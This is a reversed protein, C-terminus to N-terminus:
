VHARGIEAEAFPLTSGVLYSAPVGLQRFLWILMTTTSTKGHAGAVAILKFNHKKIFWPIFQDRKATTLGLTQARTLEPHDASLASTYIM